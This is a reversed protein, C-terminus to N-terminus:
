SGDVEIWGGKKTLKVKEGRALTGADGAEDQYTAAVNRRYQGNRTKAPCPLITESLSVTVIAGLFTALFFTSTYKRRNRFRPLFSFQRLPSM